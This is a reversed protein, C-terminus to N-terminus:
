ADGLGHLERHKALFSPDPAYREPLRLSQGRYRLLDIVVPDHKYALLKPSALLRSQADFGILGRDFARDIHATLCLGNAPNTRHIPEDAWRLIHSAVLLAPLASGTVCCRGGYAGLVAARFYDQGVRVRVRATRETTASPSGREAPLTDTAFPEAPEAVGLRQLAAASQDFLPQWSTQFESWIQRDARSAGELGKIGRAQQAPDLSALNSLKMALSSPTRGMAEAVAQLVPNRWHFQGFPLQYYLQMAILLHDRTWPVSKPM